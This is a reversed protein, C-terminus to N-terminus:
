TKIPLVGPDTYCEAQGAPCCSSGIILQKSTVQNTPSKERFLDLEEM